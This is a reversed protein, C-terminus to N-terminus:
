LWPAELATAKQKGEGKSLSLADGRGREWTEIRRFARRSSWWRYLPTM